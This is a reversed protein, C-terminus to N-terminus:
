PLYLYHQDPTWFSQAKPASGELVTTVVEVEGVCLDKGPQRPDVRNLYELLEVGIGKVGRLSTIKVDASQVGSLTAQESGYNHSQGKVEFGFADQFYKISEASDRVVMATHDIGLFVEESHEQWKPSGKGKPFSILELPHGDPDKFYFAKIGAADTNWAPITQPEPSIQSVNASKVIEYAKDMESVVIAIHQFWLDNSRTDTPLSSECRPNFNTLELTEAGLKLLTRTPSSTDARSFHLASVYFQAAKELDRVNLRINKVGYVGPVRPLRQQFSCATLSLLFALRVLRKCFKNM